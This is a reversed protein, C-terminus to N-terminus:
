SSCALSSSIVFLDDIEVEVMGGSIVPLEVSLFAGIGLFESSMIVLWEMKFGVRGKEDVIGGVTELPVPVAVFRVVEKVSGVRTSGGSWSGLGAFSAISVVVKDM